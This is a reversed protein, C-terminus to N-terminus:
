EGGKKKRDKRSASAAAAATLKEEDPDNFLCEYTFSFGGKRNEKPPDKQLVKPFLPTESDELAVKQLAEFFAFADESTPALGKVTVSEDRRYQFSALSMGEADPMSDSVVKLVELAGRAHDAYREILEVKSKTKSVAEYERRHTKEQQLAKQRSTLFDYCADVGFLVGLLLLWVGGLVAMWIMLKRRFRNETLSERWDEPTVDFSAGEVSRRAVGEAGAFADEVEVVRVPGFMGLRALVEPDVAARSCVVVDDAVEAGGAQLLSLMVERGLDAVTATNGLGRLFSPAGDDIVVLDWGGNMDMLVLRRSADPKECLRPWLSRMWGFVAADTRKVHVKAAALAEGIEACAAQPLAAIVAIIETDTEALIEAGPLLVEDSFPSIGELETSAFGLLDDRAEAPLRVTKVLFKSLPLALAFERVGFQRAADAFARALPKDAEHVEETAVVDEDASGDANEADAIQPVAVLPWDFAAGRAYGEGEADLRVGYLATDGISLVTEEKAM